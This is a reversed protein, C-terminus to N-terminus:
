LQRIRAAANLDETFRDLSVHRLFDPRAQLMKELAASHDREFHTHQSRDIYRLAAVADTQDFHLEPRALYYDLYRNLYNIAADSHFHAMVLCYAGGAYCVDSRLLLRGIHDLHRPRELILAFYAAATRSRWNLDSLLTTIVEDTVRDRVRLFADDEAPGFSRLGKLYFPIVLDGYLPSVVDFPLYPVDLAAYPGAHTVTAGQVLRLIAADRSEPISSLTKGFLKNIFEFMVRKAKLRVVGLEAVASAPAARAHHTSLHRCSAALTVASRTRQLAHNPTATM